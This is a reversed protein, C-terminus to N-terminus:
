AVDLIPEKLTNEDARQQAEARNSRSKAGVLDVSLIDFPMREDINYGEIFQGFSPSVSDDDNKVLKRFPIGGDCNILLKASEGTDECVKVFDVRKRVRKFKRPVSVIVDRSSFCSEIAQADIKPRATFDADKILHIESQLRFQPVSTPKSNLADNLELWVGSRLEIPSPPEKGQHHVNPGESLKLNRKKILKQKKLGIPQSEIRDKVEGHLLIQMGTERRKPKVIEVFFPRGKALVLSNEDESGIWIFNCGEAEFARTLFEKMISQVSLKEIGSYGCAACGIGGCVKCLKSKQPIGRLSKGYSARIWVSKPVVTVTHDTLSVLIIVEPKSYEISKGTLGSIRGSLTRTIQTKLNERGRIKFASRLEDEKDLLVHPIVTGVQFSRFEYSQLQRAIERALKPIRALEGRCIDCRSDPKVLSVGSRRTSSPFERKFCQRCLLTTAPRSSSKKQGIM